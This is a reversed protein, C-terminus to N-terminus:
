RRAHYREERCLGSATEAARDILRTLESADYADGIWHVRAGTPPGAEPPGATAFGMANVILDVDLVSQAGTDLDEVTAGAADLGTLRSRARFAIREADLSELRRFRTSPHAKFGIDPQDTVLTVVNSSRALLHSVEVSYLGRGVVLVSRGRPVAGRLVDIGLRVRPDQDAGDGLREHPGAQAWVVTPAERLAADDGRVTESREVEVVGADRLRHEIFPRIKAFEELFPVAARAGLLGGRDHRARLLTVKWGGRALWEAATVAPLSGGVVVARGRGAEPVPEPPVLTDERGTTPDTICVIEPRWSRANCGGCGICPWIDAARGGEAKGAWAPDAILARGLAVFDADGRALIDEAQEPEIIRGVAITPIRSQRRVTGALPVYHEVGAGAPMSGVWKPYSGYVSGSVHVLDVGDGRVADVIEVTEQPGLGGQVYEKGSLRVSLVKGPGLIERTAAVIEHLFRTRAAVDGGYGDTRENSFPSLFQGILYGHAGHIEIGDFGAEVGRKAAAAFSQVIGAIEDASLARPMEQFRPCPIPSPAVPQEGIVESRTQRGCHMLQLIAVSGANKISEALRRLGPVADDSEASLHPIWGRGRPEVSAGEVIVGGTGGAARREYYRRQQETVLGRADAYRSTLPAMLVRNPFDVDRIRKPAFLHPYPRPRM